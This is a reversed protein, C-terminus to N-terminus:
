ILIKKLLLMTRESGIIKVERVCEFILFFAKEFNKRTYNKKGATEPLAKIKEDGEPVFEVILWNSTSAFYEAVKDFPVNHTIVIHHLLALATILDPKSRETLLVREQNAWGMSPSPNVLDFILPYINEIKQNKLYNFNKEIALPDADLSLVQCGFAAITRSYLGDNAGVDWVIKPNVQLLFERLTSAKNAKGEESYHQEQDYDQWQTKDSKRLQLHHIFSQLHDILAFLNRKSISRNKLENLQKRDGYYKVSMAQLHIHMLTAPKLWTRLPLLKAAMKLPIGDVGLRLLSQFTVGLYSSICLPALFHECFQRYGFWIQGENYTTFSLTDIFIPKYSKFQVNFGSADKLIMGHELSVKLVQLTLLAAEKLQGFSWEYPYSIIPLREPKIFLALDPDNFNSLSTIEHKILLDREFLTLKLGSDTLLSFDSKYSKDISRYISGEHEFVFGSPDRFSSSNRLM